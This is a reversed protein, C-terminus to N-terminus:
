PVPPHVAFQVDACSPTCNAEFYTLQERLKKGGRGQGHTQGVIHVEADDPDVTLLYPSAFGAGFLIQHDDMTNKRLAGGFELTGDSKVVNGSANGVAVEADELLDENGPEFEDDGCTGSSCGAPNNFVVWWLTVADGPVLGEAEVTVLIMNGTRTLHSLGGTDTADAFWLVSQTDTDAM